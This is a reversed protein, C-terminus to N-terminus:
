QNDKIIDKTKTSAALLVSNNSDTDYGLTIESNNDPLEKASESVIQQLGLIGVQNSTDDSQSEEYIKKLNDAGEQTKPRVEILTGNTINENTVDNTIKYEWGQENDTDLQSKLHSVVKDYKSNDIKQQKATSQETKSSTGSSKTSNSTCASLSLLAITTAGLFIIKKM